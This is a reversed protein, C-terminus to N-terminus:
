LQLRGSSPVFCFLFLAKHRYYLASGEVDSPSAEVPHHGRCIHEKSKKEERITVLGVMIGNELNIRVRGHACLSAFGQAFTCTPAGFAKDACTLSLLVKVENMLQYVLHLHCMFIYPDLYLDM